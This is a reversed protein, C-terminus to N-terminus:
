AIGYIQNIYSQNWCAPMSIGPIGHPGACGYCVMDMMVGWDLNTPPTDTGWKAQSYLRVRELRIAEWRANREETSEVQAGIPYDQAQTAATPVAFTGVTQITPMGGPYGAGTGIAGTFRSGGGGTSASATGSYRILLYGAVGFVAVGVLIKTTKDNM